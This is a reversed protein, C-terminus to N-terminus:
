PAAAAPKRKPHKGKKFKVPSSLAVTWLQEFDADDIEGQAPKVGLLNAIEPVSNAHHVVLILEKAAPREKIKKVVESAEAVPTATVGLGGASIAEDATQQTRKYTSCFAAGVPVKLDRLLEGLARARAKGEETLDPDRNSPDDRRKEAHRTLIVQTTPM